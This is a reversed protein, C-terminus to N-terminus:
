LVKLSVHKHVKKVELERKSEKSWSCSLTSVSSLDRLWTTCSNSDSLPVIMSFFFVSFSDAVISIVLSCLINSKFVLSIFLTFLSARFINSCLVSISLNKRSASSCTFDSIAALRYHKYEPIWCGIEYTRLTEINKYKQNTYWFYNM